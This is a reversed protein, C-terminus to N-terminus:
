TGFTASQCIDAYAVSFIHKIRDEAEVAGRITINCQSFFEMNAQLGCRNREAGTMYIPVGNEDLVFLANKSLPAILVDVRKGLMDELDGMIKLKMDFADMKDALEALVDVDSDEAAADHAYSGFLTAKQIDHRACMVDIAKEIEDKSLMPFGKGQSDVVHTDVDAFTAKM